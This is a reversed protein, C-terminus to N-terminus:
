FKVKELGAWEAVASTYGADIKQEETCQDSLDATGEAPHSASFSPEGFLGEIEALFESMDEETVTEISQENPDAYSEGKGESAPEDGQEDDDRESPNAYWVSENVEKKYREIASPLQEPHYRM